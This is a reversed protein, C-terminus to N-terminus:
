KAPSSLFADLAAHFADSKTHICWHTGEPIRVVQLDSVIEALGKNMEWGLAEDNDGQTVDGGGGGRGM